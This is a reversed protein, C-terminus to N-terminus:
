RTTAETVDTVAWRTGTRRLDLDLREQHDEDTYRLAPVTIRSGTTPIPGIELYVGDNHVARPPDEEIAESRDDVFRFSEYEKLDQLVDAQLDLAVAGETPSGLFVDRTVKDEDDQPPVLARVSAAIVKAERDDDPSARDCAAVFLGSALAIVAALWASRAHTRTM